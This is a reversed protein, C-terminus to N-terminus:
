AEQESSRNLASDLTYAATIAGVIEQLSLMGSSHLFSLGIEVGIIAWIAQKTRTVNTFLYTKFSDSTTDDIYRKKVWHGAGGLFGLLIYILAFLYQEM